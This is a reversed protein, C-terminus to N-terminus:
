GSGPRLEAPMLQAAVREPAAGAGALMRAAQVHLAARLGAPMGEYLAQRILGHRFGLRVGAEVLVGAAAAADVVAMLEGASRGSVVELDTVSFEPGLLAAWRLVGVADAPLVGLRGAIAAALSVPVRAVGPGGPLEAVGGAVRVRGERVLGDVLERAYLPNGGAQGVMGALRRGPRGGALVGALEAVEGEGLPGLDVVAGGREAVGRRLRASM